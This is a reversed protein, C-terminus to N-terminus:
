GPFNLLSDLGVELTQLGLWASKDSHNQTLIISSPHGRIAEGSWWVETQRGYLATQIALEFTRASLCATRASPGRRYWAWDPQPSFTRSRAPDRFLVFTAPQFDACIVGAQLRPIPASRRGALTPPPRTVWGALPGVAWQRVPSRIPESRRGSCSM